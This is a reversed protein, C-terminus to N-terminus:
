KAPLTPPSHQCRARSRNFFFNKVGEEFGPQQNAQNRLVVSLYLEHRFLFVLSPQVASHRFLPSWYKKRFIQTLRHLGKNGRIDFNSM